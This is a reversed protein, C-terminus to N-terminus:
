VICVNKVIYVNKENYLIFMKKCHLCKKVNYLIFM